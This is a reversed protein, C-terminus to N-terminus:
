HEIEVFEHRESFPRFPKGGNSYFKTFFEVYQLRMTHVFAGLVNVAISFIHGGVLVLLAILWGIFPIPKVLQATINVAMAIGATVMGLAMLRVYSLLDGIFGIGNYINYLGQFFRFIPNKSSGSLFLILALGLYVAWKAWSFHAVYLLVLGMLVIVWALENAIGNLRAGMKWKNYFGILLGWLIQIYGMALSIYFFKMPDEMPDFWMLKSRIAALFPINFRVFLDGFWGGTLAGAVITFLGGGALIALLRNEAGMKKMLWLALLTVVLGYGADTLCVGFFVVFFPMLLPTPDVERFDPLGYMETILEYPRFIKKNKLAIPPKEGEAPEVEVVSVSEFRDTIERFKQWNDEIVWGELIFTENTSLSLSEVREREMLTAYYDHIIQLKKRERALEHLRNELIEEERDLEELKQQLRKLEDEVRGKVDRFDFAEFGAEALVKRVEAEDEKLYAVLVYAKKSDRNVEEVEISANKLIELSKLSVTGALLVVDRVEKLESVDYKLPAWPSLASIQEKIANRELKIANQRKKIEEFASIVPQPDYSKVIEKFEEASVKEKGGGLLGGGQQPAYNKLGNIVRKLRQLIDGYTTKQPSQEEPLEQQFLKSKWIDSIHIVSAKQLNEILADKEDKHVVLITKKVGAIAM